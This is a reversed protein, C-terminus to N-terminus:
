LRTQLQITVENKSVKVVKALIRKKSLVHYLYVKDDPVIVSNESTLSPVDIIFYHGANTKRLMYNKLAHQKMEKNIEYQELYLCLTLTVFYDEIELKKITSLSQICKLYNYAKEPLNYLKSENQLVYALWPPLVTQHPRFKQLM